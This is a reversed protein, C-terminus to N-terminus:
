GKHDGDCISRYAVHVHSGRTMRAVPSTCAGLVKCMCGWNCVYVLHFEKVIGFPLWNGLRRGVERLSGWKTWMCCVQHSAVQWCGLVRSTNAWWEKWSFLNIDSTNYIDYHVELGLDDRDEHQDLNYIQKQKETVFLKWLMINVKRAKRRRLIFDINLSLM